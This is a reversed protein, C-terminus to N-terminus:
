TGWVVILVRALMRAAQMLEVPGLEEPHVV